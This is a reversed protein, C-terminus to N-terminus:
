RPMRPRIGGHAREPDVDSAGERVRNEDGVPLDPRRLHRGGGALLLRHDRSGRGHACHVDVAERVSRRDRRVGQELPAARPRREHRVLAELVDQVQAALRARVQVPRAGLMGCREDRELAAVAHPAADAHLALELREVQVRERVDVGLRDGDREEEREAVRGVLARHRRLEPAAVRCGM